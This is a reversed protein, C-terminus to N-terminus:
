QAQRGPCGSGRRAARRRDADHLHARRPFGLLQRVRQNLKIRGDADKAVVVADELSILYEKQLELVRKRVTEATEENEYTIAILDAM